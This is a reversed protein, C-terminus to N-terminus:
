GVTTIYQPNKISIPENILFNHNSLSILTWTISPLEM